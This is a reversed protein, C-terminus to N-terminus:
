SRKSNLNRNEHKSSLLAVYTQPHRRWVLSVVHTPSLILYLENLEFIHSYQVGPMNISNNKRKLAVINAILNCKVGRVGDYDKRRLRSNIQPRM